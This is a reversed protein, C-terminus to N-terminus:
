VPQWFEANQDTYGEPGDETGALCAECTGFLEGPEFQQVYGCPVCVYLGGEPVRDGIAYREKAAVAQPM